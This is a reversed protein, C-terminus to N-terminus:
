KKQKTTLFTIRYLRRLLKAALWTRVSLSWKSRTSWIIWTLSSLSYLDYLKVDTFYICLDSFILKLPPRSSQIERERERYFNHLLILKFYYIIPEHIFKIFINSVPYQRKKRLCNQQPHLILIFLGSFKEPTPTLISNSYYSSNNEVWIFNFHILISVMNWEYM